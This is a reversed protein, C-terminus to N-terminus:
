GPALRNQLAGRVRTLQGRAGGADLVLVAAGYVAAGVCAKAILEVIGGFAPVLMVAPVMVATALSARGLTDWPIPLAITRRGLVASAILGLAYSAATAWVAGMVGFRPILAINLIVNAIAPIAMAVLLLRTAKGLTFATHFYYTTLGAFLGSAAIWPTVQAAGERLSEGILVECLPHSVLALGAAAPLTLLLMFSAQERATRELEARGGFELAAVAAPGAASGLWIFMVDLTRNALSYGAHYVGVSQENLFGALLFRDTTSLVLALILSGALPLGYGAYQGVRATEFKGGKMLKLESPLVWVMCVAFGAAMGAMPAAGGLGLAALAVGAAFGGGTTIMDVAAASAVRGAARRHEQALRVLGKAFTAGLGFALALKLPGELPLVILLTVAMVGMVAALAFWARYITAFHQALNGGAAERPQFRAMAAELWTFTLTHVLMVVSLALAYHGYQDPTLLRTFAYITLLGVLGQVINVPLYGLVGRWFM